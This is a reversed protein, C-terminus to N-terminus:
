VIIRSHDTREAANPARPAATRREVLLDARHAAARLAEDLDRTWVVAHIERGGPLMRGGGRQALLLAVEREERLEHAVEALALRLQQEQEGREEEAHLGGSSCGNISSSM